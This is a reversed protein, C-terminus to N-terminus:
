GSVAFNEEDDSISLHLISFHSHRRGSSHSVFLDPLYNRVNSGQSFIFSSIFFLVSFNM